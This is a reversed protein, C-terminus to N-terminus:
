RDLIQTIIYGPNDRVEAYIRSIYAGIVGLGLLNIAGVILIVMAYFSLEGNSWGGIWILYLWRMGALSAAGMVGLSAYFAFYLPFTSWNTILNAVIRVLQWLTYNSEGYKRPRRQVTVTAFRGASLWAFLSSLYRTKENYRNVNQVLQDDLAIFGSAIDPCNVGTLKRILYNAVVTGVRRYLRGTTKERVGFVIDYGEDLKELFEEIHEVPTQLDADIIFVTRGRSHKLGATAAMQQGFNRAFRIVRIREDKDYLNQLIEPSSDTSGDDVFLLEFSRGIGELIQFLEDCLERLSEEENFVPILVSIDINSQDLFRIRRPTIDRAIDNYVM